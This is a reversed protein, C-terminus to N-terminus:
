TCMKATSRTRTLKESQPICLLPFLSVFGYVFLLFAVSAYQM